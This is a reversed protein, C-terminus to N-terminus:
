SVRSVGSPSKKRWIATEQEGYSSRHILKWSPPVGWERLPLWNTNDILLLGGERIHPVAASVCAQRYHGDILCLDFTADGCRDIASVYAPVPDYTPHTPAELPHDLPVLRYDVTCGEAARLAETVRRFWVPDHEISVLRRVRQSLWLTSRGSGWEFVSSDKRLRARCVAAAAHSFWPREPHLTEQIQYLGHRVAAM